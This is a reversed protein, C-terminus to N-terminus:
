FFDEEAAVRKSAKVPVALTAKRLGYGAILLADIPGDYLVGNKNKPLSAVLKPFLRKVAVLSKAKPKMDNSIGAHMEKAWKNPEVYTVPFALLQIAIELAAFGKGYNFAHKAGMGFAVARELLIPISGHNQQIGWLIEHVADFDISKEKGNIILPMDFIEISEGDTLVFSGGFGPDIGLVSKSKRM